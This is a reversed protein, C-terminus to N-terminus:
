FISIWKGLTFEQAISFLLEEFIAILILAEKIFKYERCAAFQDM